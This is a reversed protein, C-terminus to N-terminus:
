LPRAFLLAPDPLCGALPTTRIHSRPIMPLPRPNSNELTFGSAGAGALLRAPLTAHAARDMGQRWAHRRLPGRRLLRFLHRQVSVNPLALPRSVKRLWPRTATSPDLAACCLLRHPRHDRNPHDDHTLTPEQQSRGSSLRSILKLRHFLQCLESFNIRGSKPLHNSPGPLHIQTSRIILRGIVLTSPLAQLERCGCPSASM